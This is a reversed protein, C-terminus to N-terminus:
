SIGTTGSMFSTLSARALTWYGKDATTTARCAAGALCAQSLTAREGGGCPRLPRLPTAGSRGGVMSPLKDVIWRRKQDAKQQPVSRHARTVGAELRRKQRM